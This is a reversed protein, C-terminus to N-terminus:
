NSEPHCLLGHISIILSIKLISHRQAIKLFNSESDSRCKCIADGIRLVEVHTFLVIPFAMKEFLIPPDM